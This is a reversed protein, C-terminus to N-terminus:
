TQYPKNQFQDTTTLSPKNSDNPAKKWFRFFDNYYNLTAEPGAFILTEEAKELAEQKKDTM